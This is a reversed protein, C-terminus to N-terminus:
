NKIFKYVTAGIKLFYFNSAMGSLNISYLSSNIIGSNVIQGLSSYITYATPEVFNNEITIQSLGPNPYILVYDENDIIPTAKEYIYYEYQARQPSLSMANTNQAEIYFKVNDQSNLYPFTCSFIGDQPILDGNLGNDNLEFSKFKSAYISQTAMLNASSVNQIDVTLVTDIIEVSGIIPPSQNIEPHSTLFNLRERVTPMIGAFGYGGWTSFGLHNETNFTFDSISFLKYIDSLASSYSMSQLYNKQNRLSTTDLENMVTRIHATYRKRNYPNNLLKATLPRGIMPNDGFYPDFHFPNPDTPQYYLDWGLLANFFSESLDWPIMQFLGDESQYLYYNHVYYGNYTDFNAIVTNVAFAWLVRDVNLISDIESTNYNLTYILDLLQEWGYDSKITYTDYYSLSDTGMWSLNPETANNGSNDGCFVDANDCKFLVGDKEGFHKELFQKNISETNVYLGLYNGQVNLKTLNVEPSPLYNQYIESALHERAFTADLYGNALKVKKYNMLKQGSVWYNMDLNYPVKPVGNDNPICFTSNGKYRVGVSDFVAGNLEVTAPIRLSSNFFFSNVLTSHYNPNYFNISLERISDIDYFGGVLDYNIQPNFLSINQGFIQASLFIYLLAVKKM